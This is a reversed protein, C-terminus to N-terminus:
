PYQQRSHVVNLVEVAVTTVRYILIYNPHSVFQRTGPVPGRRFLAPLEGLLEADEQLRYNLKIAAAPNRDAIYETIATLDLLAPELWVVPLM